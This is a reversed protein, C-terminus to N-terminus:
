DLTKVRLKRFEVRDGHGLFGIHGSTREIGPHDNGDVTPKGIYDALDADVIESGNLTVKVKTGDCVIEEENWQGTPKLHGSKAPVVGYISGHFQWPKLDAYKEHTEDLVQSEMGVYAANGELPARLGIGNNGGPPLRFEFRLVFDGYEDATFLNGGKDPICTIAGDVVEYGDVSGVWGDLSKGDFLSVFGEEGDDATVVVTTIAILFSCVATVFLRPRPM